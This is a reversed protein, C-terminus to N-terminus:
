RWQMERGHVTIAYIILVDAVIIITSWVPYAPLVALQGVANLAALVVGLILAWTRGTVLAAAAGIQVIGFGLFAWGWGTLDLFLLEGGTVVLTENEFLAALGYIINFTGNVVLVVMGFVIVGTWASPDNMAGTYPKPEEYIQEV